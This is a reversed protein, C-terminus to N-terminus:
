EDLLVIGDSYPQVLDEVQEHEKKCDDCMLSEEGDRWCDMCQWKAIGNTCHECATM